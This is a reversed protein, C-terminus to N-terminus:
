PLVRLQGVPLLVGAAWWFFESSLGSMSFCLPYQGVVRLGFHRKVRERAEPLRPGFLKGHSMEHECADLSLDKAPSVASKILSNIKMSVAVPARRTRPDAPQSGTYLLHSSTDFKIDRLCPWQGSTLVRCAPHSWQHARFTTQSHMPARPRDETALRYM